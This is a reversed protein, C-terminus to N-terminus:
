NEGEKEQGKENSKKEEVNTKTETVNGEQAAEGKSEFAAFSAVKENENLRIIRVGSTNRGIISIGNAPIRIAQGKNTVVLIEDNENVCKAGAVFGNREETKINIIGSGGRGQLRYEEIETRKGYGNETITLLVPTNCVTMSVVEDDDDMRIGIVGQGMRGIERADEEVFRISQGKKTSLLVSQKGDTKVVEVLGDNEKLTIAIIGTKRPNNFNSLATRKIIGLKTAMMLFENENFKDVSIWSTVKEDKLDLLNVITKGTAHRSVEPVKYSKLWFIRGLNTFCLLYNHNKTVIVDLIADEEKTEGGVGKGGRKQTRYENIPLRKIYGRGTILLVVDDNPILAEDDIEEDSDLIETRRPNNYKEKIEALEAKIIDLIKKIDSLIDKLKIIEKILESLEQEIKKRELSILKQLRMDLIANAQKESLQYKNMLGIRAEQVDGSKKLFAVIPEINDLAKTLGELIHAKDTAVRLEFKCRRTVIEKRFDVFERIMEYLSLVKPQKGVLLLNIIGFSSQLGTHTYLQNLTVEPNADRTLEVVVEIGTRDSLDHVGRVGEIVKDRVKDAITEIISTKTVQYPIEKILIVNKKHDIECKGRLKISGRGTKQANYIGNRGLIQGGTPFDPGKVFNMVQEENSGDIYSLIGDIIEGLNHPPMNTAMGVAIGSSGNILLNPFKSPMVTPEKLTGDFNPTFDVTDKELDNLMEEALKQLRVETYRMSAPPDGDISGFNGQGEVLTYRMSFEQAMRVLSEYIPSDGHPHYRGMTDGVIRASKKTPKNHTNGLEHMGFLIRRHVPKLGDRIDPIARGVIVSMSYDLYSEKLDKEISKEIITESM